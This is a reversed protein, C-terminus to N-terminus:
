VYTLNKRTNKHMGFCVSCYTYICKAMYRGHARGDAASNRHKARAFGATRLVGGAARDAANNRRKARKKVSM